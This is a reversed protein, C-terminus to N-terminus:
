PRRRQRKDYLVEIKCEVKCHEPLLCSVDEYGSLIESLDSIRTENDSLKTEYDSLITEYDSLRTEYDM